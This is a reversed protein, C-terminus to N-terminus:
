WVVPTVRAVAGPVRRLAWAIRLIARLTILNEQFSSRTPAAVVNPTGVTGIALPTTDEMHVAAASSVAIEVDGLVGIFSAIDIAAVTNVAIFESTVIDLEGGGLLQLTIGQAPGAVFVPVAGAGLAEVLNAIDAAMAAVPDTLASPTVATFNGVAFLGPPRLVDAAVTSFLQQDVLRSLDRALESRIVSELNPVSASLMEETVSMLCGVKRPELLSSNFSFKNVPIPNGQGVWAGVPTGTNRGTVRIGAVGDFALNVGSREVLQTFANPPQPAASLFDATAQGALEAAWTPTDTRAPAVASRAVFASTAPCGHYVDALIQDPTLNLHTTLLRVVAARAVLDVPKLRQRKALAANMAADARMEGHRRAAAHEESISSYGSPRAM